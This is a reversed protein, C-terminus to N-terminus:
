RPRRRLMERQVIRELLEARLKQLAASPDTPPRLSEEEALTPKAVAPGGQALSQTYVIANAPLLSIASM